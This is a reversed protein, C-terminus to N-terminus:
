PNRVAELDLVTHFKSLDASDGRVEFQPVHYDRAVEILKRGKPTIGFYKEGGTESRQEVLDLHWLRAATKRAEADVPRDGAIAAFLDKQSFIRHSHAYALASLHRPSQIFHFQEVDLRAEHPVLWDQNSWTEYSARGQRVYSRMFQSAKAAPTGELIDRPRMPFGNALAADFLAFAQKENKVSM